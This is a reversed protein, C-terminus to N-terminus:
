MCVYTCLCTNYNIYIMILVLLMSKLPRREGLDIPLRRYSYSALQITYGISLITVSPQGGENVEVATVVEDFKATSVHM